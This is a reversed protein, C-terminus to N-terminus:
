LVSFVSFKANQGLVTKGATRLLTLAVLPHEIDKPMCVLEIKKNKGTIYATIKSRKIKNWKAYLQIVIIVATHQTNLKEKRELDNDYYITFGTVIGYYGMIDQRENLAVQLVM